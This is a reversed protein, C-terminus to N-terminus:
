DEETESDPVIEDDHSKIINNNHKNSDDTIINLRHGKGQNSHGLALWHQANSDRSDRTPLHLLAKLQPTPTNTTAPSSKPDRQM